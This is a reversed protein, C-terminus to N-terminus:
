EDTREKGPGAPPQPMRLIREIQDLPSQLADELEGAAQQAKVLADLRALESAALEIKLGLWELKSIDGLEYRARAATEQKLLGLRLDESTTIKGAAARCAAVASDIAGITKAQLALFRAAAETRRADAEAIPGKNRSLLPLIFSLGLTWKADTQDMQFNPGLNLDPYQKAIELRLAADAGAYESLSALIDARNLLAQKRIEKAPLDLRPRLLGEFSLAAGDLASLPLGLAGALQIRAQVKQKAADNAALQSNALALRAQTRDAPSAEGVALQADLIRVNETQIDQQVALLRATEGASYLDLFAQRLRSRVDWATSLINLRAADSLHRAQAVRYGRKGATEIPIELSTEPIWPSMESAPSTSNYGGLLSLTPNPREGATIRGAEAAAWQARAVDLDPQYYLAVLTLAKLDWSAPIAAPGGNKELFKLLDPSDLRRAEFDDLTKAATVPKPTYRVCAAAGGMLLIASLISLPHFKNVFDGAAIGPVAQHVSSSSRIRFFRSTAL